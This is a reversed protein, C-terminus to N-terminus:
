QGASANEIINFINGQDSVITEGEINGMTVNNYRLTDDKKCSAAAFLLAAITIIASFRRM